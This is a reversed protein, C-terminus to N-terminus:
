NGFLIAISMQSLKLEFSDTEPSCTLGAPESFEPWGILWIKIRVPIVSSQVASAFNRAHVPLVIMMAGM